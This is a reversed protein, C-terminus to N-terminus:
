YEFSRSFRGLHGKRTTENESTTEVVIRVDM